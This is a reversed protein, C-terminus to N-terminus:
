ITRFQRIAPWFQLNGNIASGAESGKLKTGTGSLELNGNVAAKESVQIETNKVDEGVRIRGNVTSGDNLLIRNDQATKGVNIATTGNQANITGDNEFTNKSAKIQVGHTFASAESSPAGVNIVGRNIAKSQSGSSLVMGVGTDIVTIDGSLGNEITSSQGDGVMMGNAKKAVIVGQNLVMGGQDAMMGKQSWSKAEEKSTVYVAGENTVTAGKGHAYLGHSNPLKSKDTSSGIVWLSQGKQFVHSGKSASFFGDNAPDQAKSDFSLTYVNNKKAQDLSKLSLEDEKQAHKETIILTDQGAAPADKWEAALATGALLSAVAAAIVTKAGKHQVSATAENVVMLANRAKSFVVKFNQNM